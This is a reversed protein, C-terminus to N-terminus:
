GAQDSRLFQFSITISVSPLRRTRNGGEIVLIISLPYSRHACIKTHRISQARMTFRPQLTSPLSTFISLCSNRNREVLLPLSQSSDCASPNDYIAQTTNLLPLRTSGAILRIFAEVVSTYWASLTSFLRM